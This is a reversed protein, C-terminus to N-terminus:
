GKEFFPRTGYSGRESGNAMYNTVETENLGYYFVVRSKGNMKAQYMAIDARKLLDESSIGDDPYASAGISVTAVVEKDDILYPQIARKHIAKLCSRIRSDDVDNRIILGLEDGGLRGIIDSVHLESKIRTALEQLVYDGAHHGLTDNVLKFDDIDIFVIYLRRDHEEGFKIQQNLENIFFKRNLVGTLGDYYALERLESEQTRLLNVQLKIQRKYTGILAIIVFVGLYSLIGPVSDLSKSRAVYMLSSFLSLFNLCLALIFFKKSGILVLSVAILMQLQTVVGNTIKCPIELGLINHPEVQQAHRQLWLALYIYVIAGVAMILIQILPKNIWRKSDLM